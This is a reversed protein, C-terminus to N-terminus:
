RATDVNIAVYRNYHANLSVDLGEALLNRRGYELSGILSHGHRHKQGYVIEQRVGTQMEKYM